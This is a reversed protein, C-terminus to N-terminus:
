GRSVGKGALAAYDGCWFDPKVSPVGDNGAWEGATIVVPAHRRCDSYGTGIRESYFACSSCTSPSPTEPNSMAADVDAIDQPNMASELAAIRRDRAGALTVDDLHRTNLDHILNKQDQIKQLMGAREERHRLLEATSDAQLRTVQARLREIEEQMQDIM